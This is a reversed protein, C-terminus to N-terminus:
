RVGSELFTLSGEGRLDLRVRVGLPLTRPRELHGAPFGMAVPFPSGRFREGLYAAVEQPSESRTGPSVSGIVMGRLREFTGSRELQTLM